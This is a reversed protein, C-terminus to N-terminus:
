NQMREVSVVVIEPRNFLRLPCESNGLGRSVIEVTNGSEYRGSTYKPFLGQGPSYIGIDTFPIRWQGGHAHGSLILDYGALAFKEIYQPEHALLLSFGNIENALRFATSNRLSACNLGAITMGYAEVSEDDLVTAGAKILKERLERYRKNRMEHNGAVFYVPAIRRLDSIVREAVAIDRARYKHIIDGTFAIFDPKLAAVKKLLRENDRGFTKAHLDSLHVITVPREPAKPSVVDYRSTQMTGNSFLVFLIILVVALASGAVILAIATATM